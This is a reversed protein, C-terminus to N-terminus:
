GPRDTRSAQAQTERLAGRGMAAEKMLGEAYLGQERGFISRIVSDASFLAPM